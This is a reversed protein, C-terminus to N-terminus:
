RSLTEGAAEVAHLLIDRLAGSERAAHLQALAGQVVLLAHLLERIRTLEEFLADLDKENM